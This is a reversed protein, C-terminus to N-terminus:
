AMAVHMAPKGSGLRLEEDQERGLRPILAPKELVVGRDGGGLQLRPVDPVSLEAAEAEVAARDCDHGIFATDAVDRLEACRRDIRRDPGIADRGGRRHVHALEGGLHIARV